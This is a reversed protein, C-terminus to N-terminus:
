KWPSVWGPTELPLPIIIDVDRPSGSAPLPPKLVLQPVLILLGVMVLQICLFPVAGWYIDVTRVGSPTISRLNYIAIGFPPHMFSTQLNVALLITLWIMDVGLSQAIPAVLPLVIFAIEFFDLVFAILFVSVSVFIVFGLEGAPIHSFLAQIWQQGDLGRFVLTFFSAGMLLFMLGSVLIGTAVMAQHLKEFSLRTRLLGLFLAGTVGIAGGETPTAVGLYITALVVMVLGLPLGAAVLAQGILPGVARSIALSPDPPARRPSMQTLIFVYAVYAGILLLSPVLAGRYLDTVSVDMQEAMVILVLSPPIVQALTGTAAVVGSALRHDYGARLMGPLAILGIAIVSASVFGTIGSLVAGVVVTTYALGGPVRGFLRNLSAFMDEAIGTRELLLGMFVLMPLALLNDNSLLGQVRFFIGSLFSPEFRGTLIGFIGFVGAIAALSFAVPFGVFLTAVLCVFMAPALFEM